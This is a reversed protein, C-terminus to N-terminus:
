MRIVSAPFRASSPQDLASRLVAKWILFLGSRGANAEDHPKLCVHDRNWMGLCGLPVGPLFGGAGDTLILGARDKEVVRLVSRHQGQGGSWAPEPLARLPIPHGAPGWDSSGISEIVNPLM